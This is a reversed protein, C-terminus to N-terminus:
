PPMVQWLAAERDRHMDMRGPDRPISWRIVGGYKPEETRPTPPPPATTPTPAVVARIPTPTAAPATPASLPAATPPAVAAKTPTPPVPTAEEGGGCAVAIFSALAAMSLVLCPKSFGM